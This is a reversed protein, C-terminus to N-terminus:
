PSVRLCRFGISSGSIAAYFNSRYSVTCYSASNSWSGGRVVRSSGSSAGHPNTQAGSPYSGYIDWCWEWVNGSMDYIGLENPLKSGVTHTTNGSNSDYWAVANIDNSGSYTYGQSQNGGKAAYMWEMETPLRYGNATWDCNVNTHNNYNGKWGNPWNSPNTDYTGYSYCPTFGEQLSRRNCYEIADYWSVKYVPYNAGVGYGSAPNSGMVAQYEAQTTEYNSIYFSSLTVNSTGNNFSGGQVLIMNSKSATIRFRWNGSEVGELLPHWFVQLNKAPKVSRDIGAGTTAIPNKIDKTDWYPNLTVLYTDNAKGNLDYTIIYYGGTPEYEARINSVEQALALATFALMLILAIVKKQMSEENFIEQSM